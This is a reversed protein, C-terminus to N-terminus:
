GPIIGLGVYLMAALAMAAPLTLVWASIIGTTLRWNVQRRIAGVGVIAGVSVHTTSVPMGFASASLVVASTTLNALTGQGHSLHTIRRSMTEAVPRAGLLGGLAMAIAITVMGIELDFAGAALAIGVIKPTDNLARAFCVAGGSAVHVVDYLRGVTGPLLTMGRGELAVSPAPVPRRFGSNPAVNRVRALLFPIGNGTREGGARSRGSAKSIATFIPSTGGIMLLPLFPAVALPLFFKALLPDFNFSDHAAALGAGTLGGILAHTTSIPMGIRATGYVALGAGLVVGGLFTPDQLTADPVLGSGSFLKVLKEALFAAALSGALTALTAWVLAGRYSALGSGYLTAVGKFNDNAGNSYALFFAGGLVVLIMFTM